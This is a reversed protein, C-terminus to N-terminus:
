RQLVVKTWDLSSHEKEGKSKVVHFCEGLMNSSWGLFDLNWMSQTAHSYTCYCLLQIYLMFCLWVFVHRSDQKVIEWFVYVRRPSLSCLLCIWKSTLICCYFHKIILKQGTWNFFIGFLSTDDSRCIGCLNAVVALPERILQRDSTTRLHPWPLHGVLSAATARQRVTHCRETVYLYNHKAM